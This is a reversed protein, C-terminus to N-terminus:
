IWNEELKNGYRIWAGSKKSGSEQSKDIRPKRAQITRGASKYLSYSRVTISETKYNGDLVLSTGAVPQRPPENAPFLYLHVRCSRLPRRQLRIATGKSTNYQQPYCEGWQQKATELSIRGWNAAEGQTGLLNVNINGLRM